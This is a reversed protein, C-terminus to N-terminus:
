GEWVRAKLAVAAAEAEASKKSSGSGRGLVQERWLVETVFEKSHDPGAELVVRYVPSVSDIAQLIEQLRGKPNTTHHQAPAVMTEKALIRLVTERAAAFGSDLYIAGIVAEIADALNSERDRGGNAEEGRGLLLNRGMGLRAACLALAKRSVVSARLQTLRGEAENPLTKFFHDTLALQIVADGLFELRQNDSAAGPMEAALSPHTLAQRLLAPNQFTYGLQEALAEM